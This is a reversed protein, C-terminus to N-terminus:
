NVGHTPHIVFRPQQWLELYVHTPYLNTMSGTKAVRSSNRAEVFAGHFCPLAAPFYSSGQAGWHVGGHPVQAPPRGQHFSSSPGQAPRQLDFLQVHAVLVGDCGTHRTQREASHVYQTLRTASRNPFRAPLGFTAPEIGPRALIVKHGQSM